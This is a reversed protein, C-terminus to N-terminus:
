RNNFIEKESKRLSELHKKAFIKKYWPLAVYGIFLRLYYLQGERLGLKFQKFLDDKTIQLLDSFVKQDNVNVLYIMEEINKFVRRVEYNKVELEETFSMDENYRHIITPTILERYTPNNPLDILEKKIEIKIAKM